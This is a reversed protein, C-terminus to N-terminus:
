KALDGPHAQRILAVVRESFAQEFRRSRWAMVRAFAPKGTADRRQHGDRDVQPKTPLTAWPQGDRGRLVPVDYLRLGIPLELEAFGFLQGQRLPRWGILRM